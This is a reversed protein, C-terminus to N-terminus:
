QKAEVPTEKKEAAAEVAGAKAEEAAEIAAPAAEEFAKKMKEKSDKKPPELMIPRKYYAIKAEEGHRVIYSPSTTKVGNVAIHGHAIFQRAQKVTKALNKRWIITQLRRELLEEISLSLIDDATAKAKFLGMRILSEVLEREKKERKELPLALLKRASQRKKRLITEARRLERKNKLGYIELIKKESEIRQKQWRKKPREYQRSTKKPDGM